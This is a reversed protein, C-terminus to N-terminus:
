RKRVDVTVMYRSLFHGEARVWVLRLTESGQAEELAVGFDDTTRVLTHNVQMIIDGSRLGSREGPSGREVEAVLIGHDIKIGVHAALSGEMQQVGLGLMARALGAADPKPIERPLLTVLVRRGARRIELEVEGAEPTLVAARFHALTAAPKGNVAVVTDGPRMGEREAQSGKAVERVVVETRPAQPSYREKLELGMTIRRLKRYNLLSALSGRASDIPIAFGIGQAGARIASNVGIVEGFINLLPGGSNGPNILTDTQLVDRFVVRGRVDIDRKVASVIGTTVSNELGFPNGVAIVKEGVMLDDSRGFVLTPLPKDANIKIVALDSTTDVNVLEAPYETGDRLTVVIRSAQNVVHANTFAYGDATFIGGSGLSHTVRPRGFFDWGRFFDRDIVKDTSINVVAPAAREIAKVVADRRAEMRGGAFAASAAAFVVVFACVPFRKM